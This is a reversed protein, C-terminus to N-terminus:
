TDSYKNNREGRLHRHVFMHLSVYLDSIFTNNNNNNSSQVKCNEQKGFDFEWAREELTVRAHLDSGDGPGAAPLPFRM